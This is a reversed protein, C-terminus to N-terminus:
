PEGRISILFEGIETPQAFEYLEKNHKNHDFKLWSEGKPAIYGSDKLFNLRRRMEEDNNNYKYSKQKGIYWLYEYCLFSLSYRIIETLKEEQKDIRRDAEKLRHFMKPLIFGIIAAFISGITTILAAYIQIDMVGGV